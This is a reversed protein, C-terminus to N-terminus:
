PEVKEKMGPGSIAEIVSSGGAIDLKGNQTVALHVATREMGAPVIPQAREGHDMRIIYDMGDRELRM